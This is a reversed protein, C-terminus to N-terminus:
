RSFIFYIESRLRISLNLINVMWLDRENGLLNQSPLQQVAASPSTTSAAAVSQNKISLSHRTGLESGSDSGRVKLFLAKVDFIQRAYFYKFLLNCKKERLGLVKSRAEDFFQRLDREYLKCISTTYVELLKEYCAPDTAKLWHM